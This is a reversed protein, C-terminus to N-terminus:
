RGASSDMRFEDSVEDAAFLRAIVWRGLRQIIGTMLALTMPASYCLVLFIVHARRDDGLATPAVTRGLWANAENTVSPLFLSYVVLLVASAAVATVLLM